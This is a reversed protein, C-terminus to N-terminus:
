SDALKGIPTDDFTGDVDVLAGTGTVIFSRIRALTVAALVAVFPLVPVHFRPDGFFILPQVAFATAALLFFQRWPRRRGVFASVALLALTLAVFFYADAVVEMVRRWISPVFRNAGYSESALLGDHDNKVTHYGRLFVLKGETFPHSKVFRVARRVNTNNVEVEYEPTKLGRARVSCASSSQFEGTAGDHRSMCLNDGLNTSIPVFADTAQVNRITWPMLVLVVALTATGVYGFALRWRTGAVVLVVLLVPLLMLSIPRVLASLALIVGFVVLRRWGIRETSAALAVLLLIAAMVLFIFLTETLIVATHFILNPWLAVVAGAILGIRNDFLRRGVEFTLAVTGVGLVLNFVAATMSVNEPLPTLGVLWVVAGLAGIYGVPYYTTAEGNAATYGHGDAIRAAFVEYLTPDHFGRPERAAYLVWALRLAIAIVVIVLLWRRERRSCAPAPGLRRYAHGVVGRVAPM